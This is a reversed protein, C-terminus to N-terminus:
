RLHEWVDRQAELELPDIRNEHPDGVRMVIINNVFLDLAGNITINYRYKHLSAGLFVTMAVDQRYTIPIYRPAHGFVRIYTVIGRQISKVLSHPAARKVKFILAGSRRVHQGNMMRGNM